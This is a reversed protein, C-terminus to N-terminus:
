RARARRRARARICAAGGLVTLALTSPEPVTAVDIFFRGSDGFQGDADVLRFEATYTGHPLAGSVWFTPTVSFLQNGAGLAYRNGATLDATAMGGFSVNLGPTASLLELYLDAADFPSNWRGGSSNYTTDDEGALSHVNRLEYDGYEVNQALGSPLGSRFTGAFPGSGALLVVPPLGTSIEPTRNNANTDSLVAAAAPGSYSYVGLGHFHDGHHFLLSLRGHNPNDPYAGGGSAAPAEFPASRGDVGVYYSIVDAHVRDSATALALIVIIPVLRSM